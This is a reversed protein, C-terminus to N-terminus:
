QKEELSCADKLKTASDGDVTTKSGLFIFLRDCQGNDGWRVTHLFLAGNSSIWLLPTFNSPTDFHSSNIKM